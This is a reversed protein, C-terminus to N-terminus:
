IWCKHLTNKEYGAVLTPMYCKKAELSWMYWHTSSSGYLDWLFFCWVTHIIWKFLDIKIWILSYHICFYLKYEVLSLLKYVFFFVKNLWLKNWKCCRKFRLICLLKQIKLYLSAKLYFSHSCVVWPGEDSKMKMMSQVADGGMTHKSELKSLGKTCQVFSGFPSNIGCYYFFVFGTKLITPEKNMSEGPM